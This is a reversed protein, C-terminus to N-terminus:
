HYEEATIVTLGVTPVLFVAGNFEILCKKILM